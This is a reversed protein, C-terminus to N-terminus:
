QGCDAAWDNTITWSADAGCAVVSYLFCGDQDEGIVKIQQQDCAFNSLTFSQNPGIAVGDLQDGGWDDLDVHSLYVHRIQRTSNNVINISSSVQARTSSMADLAMLAFFAMSFITLRRFNRLRSNRM